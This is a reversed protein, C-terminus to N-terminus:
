RKRREKGGREKEWESVNKKRQGGRERKGERLRGRDSVKTVREKEKDTKREVSQRNQNVDKNRRKM